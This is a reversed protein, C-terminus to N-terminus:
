KPVVTLVGDAIQVNSQKSDISLNGVNNVSGKTVDRSSLALEGDELGVVIRIPDPDGPRDKNFWDPGESWECVDGPELIETATAYRPESWALLLVAGPQQQPMTGASGLLRYEEATMQLVTVSGDGM